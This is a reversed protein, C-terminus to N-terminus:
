SRRTQSSRQIGRAVQPRVSRAFVRSLVIDIVAGVSNTVVEDQSPFRTTLVLLQRLDLCASALLGFGVLQWWAKASLSTPDFGFPIFLALNTSVEIIHHCFGAPCAM